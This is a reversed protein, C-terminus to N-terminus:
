KNKVFILSSTPFQIQGLRWSHFTRFNTSIDCELGQISKQFLDDWNLCKLVINTILEIFTSLSWKLKVHWSYEELM